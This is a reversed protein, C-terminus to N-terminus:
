LKLATSYPKGSPGIRCPFLRSHVPMEKVLGVEDIVDGIAELMRSASVGEQREDIMEDFDIGTLEAVSEPTLHVANLDPHPAPESSVPEPLATTDKNANATGLPDSVEQPEQVSSSAQAAAPKAKFPRRPGLHFMYRNKHKVLDCFDKWGYMLAQGEDLSWYDKQVWVYDPLANIIAQAIEDNSRCVYDGGLDDRDKTNAQYGGEASEYPINEDNADNWESRLGEAIIEMVSDLPSAILANEDGTLEEATSGCYDCKSVEAHNQVVERVFEEEVCGARVDKVPVLWWGREEQEMEWEKARGM